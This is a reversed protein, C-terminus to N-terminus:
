ELKWTKEKYLYNLILDSIQKWGKSPVFWIIDWKCYTKYRQPFRQINKEGYNSIFIIKCKYKLKLYQWLFDDWLPQERWEWFFFNDLIIFDWNKIDSLYPIPNDVNTTIPYSFFTIIGNLENYIREWYIDDFIWCNTM